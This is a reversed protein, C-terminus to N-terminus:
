MWSLAALACLQSVGLDEDSIWYRSLPRPLTSVALDPAFAAHAPQFLEVSFFFEGAPLAKACRVLWVPAASMGM